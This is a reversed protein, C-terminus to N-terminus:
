DAAELWGAYLLAADGRASRASVEVFVRARSTTHEFSWGSTALNPDGLVQAVDDRRQAVRTEFATDDIRIHVSDAPGEDLTAAWGALRLKGDRRFAIEDVWGWAGRRFRSLASTGRAQDKPVVYLDQENALARQLRAAGDEPLTADREAGDGPLERIGALQRDGVHTGVEDRAQVGSDV